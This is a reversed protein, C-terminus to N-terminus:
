DNGSKTDSGTESRGDGTRAAGSSVGGPLGSGPQAADIAGGAAYTGAITRLTKMQKRYNACGSCMATHVRLSLREGLTLPREMAISCLATAKECSLLM